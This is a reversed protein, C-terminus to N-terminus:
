KWGEIVRGNNKAEKNMRDLAKLYAAKCDELAVRVRRTYGPCGNNQTPGSALFARHTAFGTNTRLKGTESSTDDVKKILERCNEIYEKASTLLGDYSYMLKEIKDRDMPFVSLGHETFYKWDAKLATVAENFYKEFQDLYEKHAQYAENRITYLYSDITRLDRDFFAEKRCQNDAFKDLGSAALLATGTADARKDREMKEVLQMFEGFAKDFEEFTKTHKWTNFREIIREWNTYRQPLKMTVSWDLLSSVKRRTNLDIRRLLVTKGDLSRVGVSAADSGIVPEPGKYPASPTEARKTNTVFPKQILLFLKQLSDDARASQFVKDSVAKDMLEVGQKLLANLDADEKIDADVHTMTNGWVSKDYARIEEDSMKTFDKATAFAVAFLSVTMALINKM